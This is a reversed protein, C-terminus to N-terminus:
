SAVCLNFPGQKPSLGLSLHAMAWLPEPSMQIYSVVWKARSPSNGPFRYCIVCPSPYSPRHGWWRSAQSPCGARDPFPMGTHCLTSYGVAPSGLTHAPSLQVPHTPPFPSTSRCVRTWWLCPPWPFPLGAQSGTSQLVAPLSPWTLIQGSAAEMQQGKWWHRPRTWNNGGGLLGKWLPQAVQM